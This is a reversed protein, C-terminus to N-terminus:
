EDNNKMKEKLAALAAFPKQPTEGASEPEDLIAPANEARPYAPLALALAETAILGLDVSPTLPEIDDDLDFAADEAEPLFRRTVDLDIRTRVPALTVVCAQTVTAGLRGDLQWGDRGFPAVTGEFRMKRVSIAQFLNALAQM